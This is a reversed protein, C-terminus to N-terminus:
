KGYLEKGVPEYKDGAEWMPRTASNAILRVTHAMAQCFKHLYDYNISDPDDGPKHYYKNIEEDFATFGGSFTLCPIGKKAFSVNDSRDFLGQEPAPNPFVKLGAAEVGETILQDTGTRGYGVISVLTTDNYGANDSNLNFITQKLPILPHDAYYASGILGMEEGTVLLFIVSRKAPKNALARAAALLAITGMANDRAGNYISDGVENSRTGVHDYHATVLVYEEKLKPDTGEVIGIINKSDVTRKQLGSSFIHIELPAKEKLTELIDEEQEKLLAYPIDAVPETAPDLVRLNERNSFRLFFSWPYQVRFLEIVGIAGQEAAMKIKQNRTRFISRPSSAEPTGPLLVVIKGKVDLDQYDNHSGDDAVWGYGAFVATASFDVAQGSLLLVEEKNVYTTEGITIRGKEPPRTSAMTIPQFYSDLGPAYKCGYNRFQESIFRAAINIGESGTARGKLEDSALFRMQFELESKKIQFEPLEQADLTGLILLLTIIGAIRRM